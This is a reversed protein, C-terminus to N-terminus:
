RKSGFWPDGRVERPGPREPRVPYGNIRHDALAEVARICDDAELGVLTHTNQIRIKGLRDIGLRDFQRRVQKLTLGHNRGIRLRLWHWSKTPRSPRGAVQTAGLPELARRAALGESEIVDIFAQDGEVHVLDIKEAAVGSRRAVEGPTAPSHLLVAIRVHGPKPESPTAM